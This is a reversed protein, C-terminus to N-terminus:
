KRIQNYYELLDACSKKHDASDYFFTQWGFDKAANVNGITNDIFFIEGGKANARLSALKFIDVDPKRLREITSDIVVDWNAKPMIGREIMATLMRPYMNTLLGMRCDQKMRDIVPQIYANKEFRNIFDILMSYNAPFNIHFKEKIIPIITDIDKGLCVEKEYEDYFEDFEKDDDPKIGLERKMKEFKDNGKCDNVVVGGVDFYVFSIM